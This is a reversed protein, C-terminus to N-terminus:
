LTVQKAINKLSNVLNNESLYFYITDIIANKVNKNKDRIMQQIEDITDDPVSNQRRLQPIYHSM